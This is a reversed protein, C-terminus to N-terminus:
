PCEGWGNIVALLDDVNVVDNGIPPGAPAIDAPCANPNACPGWANIVALLDDVNVTGDGPPSGLPAIDALCGAGVFYQSTGAGAFTEGYSASSLSAALPFPGAGFAAQVTWQTTAIDGAAISPLVAPNPGDVIMAGALSITIDHAPLDGTNTVQAEVVFEGGAPVNAPHGLTITFAPGSAASFNEQTALAFPETPVDPDFAGFAEVKLVVVGDENVHLQEVNDIPSASAALVENDAASYARLDLDSLADIATPYANGNYAVHRQWVLTAREKDFMQGTFLKFDGTEPAPPVEAMFVDLGHLYASGLNMYGWGYRRNWLSGAVYADDTTASTGSDTIADATNLLVAKGGMIDTVGLDYLLIIGAGTHPSASSTGGINAFGGSPTCSMSNNGPSTIDPKKRGAVTPGVSSSSTIRDDARTVTNFDDMNASALLNYAPAPRTITLSTANYGGNGTSKSVMYQFTDIVGDFFQDINIYDSGSATGNGFSYNVSEPEGTSAIYDMGAMSTANSGARAVVITDLGFAMGPFTASTSAMIGAMGTGHTGTDAVGMNSLFPHPSLAPHNQQVGTDLVGCDHVGGNVGNAWFGTVLGLSHQHNDLEPAGPRDLDISAVLPDAALAAAGGAPLRAGLANMSIINATVEGGLQIITQTLQQQSPAVAVSLRQFTERMADRKIADLQAAAARGVQQLLADQPPAIWAREQAPPMSPRALAARGAAQMRQTLADAQPKIGAFVERGIPGGPQARLTIVLDLLDNPGAADIAAQADSSIIRPEPGAVAARIGAESWTVGDRSYTKTEVGDVISKTVLYLRGNFEVHGLPFDDVTGEAAPASLGTASATHRSASGTSAQSNTNPTEAIAASALVCSGVSLGIAFSRGM